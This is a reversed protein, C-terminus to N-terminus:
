QKAECTTAKGNYRFSAQRGKIWFEAQQDAYRGGDASLVQPLDIRQGAGAFLLGVSGPGEAQTRFTATLRTGDACSYDATIAAADAASGATPVMVAALFLRPLM